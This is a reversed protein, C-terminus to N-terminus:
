AFSKARQSARHCEHHMLVTNEDTYGEPADIRDLEPEDAMTMLRDPTPCEPYGCIGQQEALKRHKLRKRHAPKGREDYMVNKWIYRNLAFELMSDSGAAERIRQRIQDLIERSTALEETTMRRSPM